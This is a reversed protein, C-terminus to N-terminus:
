GCGVLRITFLMPYKQAIILSESICLIEMSIPCPIFKNFLREILQKLLRCGISETSKVGISSSSCKIFVTLFTLFEILFLFYMIAPLLLTGLRPSQGNFLSEATTELSEQLAGQWLPSNASFSGEKFFINGNATSPKQLIFM